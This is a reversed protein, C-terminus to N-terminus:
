NNFSITRLMTEDEHDHCRYEGSVPDGSPINVVYVGGPQTATAVALPDTEQHPIADEGHITHTSSTDMNVFNITLGGDHKPMVLAMPSSWGEPANGGTLDIEYVADVTLTISQMSTAGQAKAAIKIALAKFSHSEAQSRISIQVPIETMATNATTMHLIAPTVLVSVEKTGQPLAASDTAFKVDGTFGAPIQVVGRLVATQDLAIEARGPAHFAIADALASGSLLLASLATYVKIQKSFTMKFSRRTM